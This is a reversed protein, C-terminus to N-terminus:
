QPHSMVDSRVMAGKGKAAAVVSRGKVLSFTIIIFLALLDVRRARRQVGLLSPEPVFSLVVLFGKLLTKVFTIRVVDHNHLLINPGRLMEHILHSIICCRSHPSEFITESMAASM